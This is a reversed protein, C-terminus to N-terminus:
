PRPNQKFCFLSNQYERPRASLLDYSSDLCEERKSACCGSCHSVRERTKEFCPNGCACSEQRVEWDGITDFGSTCGGFDSNMYSECACRPKCPEPKSSEQVFEDKRMHKARPVSGFHGDHRLFEPCFYAKERKRKRQNLRGSLGSEVCHSGETEWLHEIFEEDQACRTSSCSYKHKRDLKHNQIRERLGKSCPPRLQVNSDFVQQIIVM